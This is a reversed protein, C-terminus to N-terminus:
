RDVAACGCRNFHAGAGVPSALPYSPPSPNSKAKAGPTADNLREQLDRSERDIQDENTTAQSDSAQRKGTAREDSQREHGSPLIEFLRTDTLKAITRGGTDRFTAYGETELLKMLAHQFEKTMGYNECDGLWAEGLELGEWEPCDRESWRTRHAIVAALVYALPARKILDIAAEERTVTFWYTSRGSLIRFLRMDALKATTGRNTVKFRAFRGKELYRKATRYKRATMGYEKFDGLFAEGVALDHRNYGDRWCARQAIVAALVYALPYAAILEMAEDGRVVKFWSTAIPQRSKAKPSNASESDMM